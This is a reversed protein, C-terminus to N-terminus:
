KETEKIKNELISKTYEAALKVIDIGDAGISQIKNVNEASLIKPVVVIAAMEKQTPVTVYVFLNMVFLPCFIRVAKTVVKHEEESTRDCSTLFFMLTTIATVSGFLLSLVGSIENILELRTFLYMQFMTM